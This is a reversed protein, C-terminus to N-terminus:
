ASPLASGTGTAPATAFSAQRVARACEALLGQLALPPVPKEMVRIGEDALAEVPLSDATATVLVRMPVRASASARAPTSTTMGRLFSLGDVEGSLLYDAIVVDWADGTVHAEEVTAVATVVGGWRTVLATTGALIDPEDDLCLVRLGGLDVPGPRQVVRPAEATTAPITVSFTSGRGPMSRVNVKHDLVQAIRAVISLGLGAGEAMRRGDTLREFEGFAREVAAPEMGIGADRIEIRVESRAYRAAIVVRGRNSYRLANATLNQLMSRLLDRDSVGRLRTPLCILEIGAAEAQGAFEDAILQLFTSLEIPEVKPTAAGMELKSLNLLARMLRHAGEIAIDARELLSTLAGSSGSEALATGIFLRAAHLPQVLDHSAAAVFRRQSFSAQEAVRNAQVLQENLVILEHTRQQVSRELEENSRSLVLAARRMETVDAFTVLYDDAAIRAGAMRLITGDDLQIEELLGTGAAIRPLSGLLLTRVSVAPAPTDPRELLERLSKGAYVQDLSLGVCRLYSANWAVLRLDRDVVGIGDELAELTRLLLERNFSIALGAEDLVRRVTTADQDGGALAIAVVNRASSAGLVGALRREAVLAMTPTVPAGDALRGTHTSVEFDLLIRRAETDGVFQALVRELDEVTAQIQRQFIAPRDPYTGVFSEAQISDILRPSAHLSVIIFVQANVCLSVLAAFMVPTDRRASFLFDLPMGGPRFDTAAVLVLTFLGSLIGVIAGMENARRWYIGGILAPFLQASMALTMMGPSRIQDNDLIYLSIVWAVIGYLAMSVWKMSQVTGAMRTEDFGKRGYKIAVPLVLESSIIASLATLEAVIMGTGAAFGGLLVVLTLPFAGGADPIALIQLHREVGPMALGARATTAIAYTALIWLAFYMPYLWIGRIDEPKELMVFSLHFQRPLTFATFTCLLTATLFRFDIHAALPPMAKVEQVASIGASHAIWLCAGAAALLGVIKVVADLAIMNVFGRNFRSLEARRVGVVIATAVMAGMLGLSVLGAIPEAGSVAGLLSALLGLQLAFYPLTSVISVVAALAGLSTSKGYRAALFDSISTVNEQKTLRAVRRWIPFGITSAIIPGLGNAVFLWNGEIARGTATFYSWATAVTALSLGYSISRLPAKMRRSGTLLAVLPMVLLYGLVSLLAIVGFTM